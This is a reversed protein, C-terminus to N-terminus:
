YNAEREKAAEKWKPLLEKKFTEKEARLKEM